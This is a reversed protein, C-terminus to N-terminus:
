GSKSPLRSRRNRHTKLAKACTRVLLLSVLVLILTRLGWRTAVVFPSHSISEGALLPSRALVTDSAILRAEGVPDGRSVPAQLSNHLTVELEPPSSVGTGTVGVLTNQCVASVSSASGGRVRARGLADGARAYVHRRHSAFGYELLRLAEDYMDPSDLVVAILQWDRKTGSAVLCHGSQNVFGTKVGDVFDAQRLLKNHNRLTRAGAPDSPLLIRASTASVLEQFRPHKLAERTILAVDYASSYHERHHLGHPNVFHTDTAGLERARENMRKAFAPISGSIHEAIVLAADNASKLLVAAVLDDMRMLDGSKLYLSSGPAQAATTSVLVSDDLTCTELALLATMVKTTSAVPRPERTNKGFLVTGTEVDILVAAAAEVAPARSGAPDSPAASLAHAPALGALALSLALGFSPQWWIRRARGRIM